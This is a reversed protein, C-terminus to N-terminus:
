LGPSQRASRDSGYHIMNWVCNSVPTFYRSVTARLAFVFAIHASESCSATDLHEWICVKAAAYVLASKGSGVPGSLLVASATQRADHGDDLDSAAADDQLVYVVHMLSM